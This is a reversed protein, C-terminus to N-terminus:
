QRHKNPPCLVFEPCQIIFLFPLCHQNVIGGNDIFSFWGHRCNKHGYKKPAAVICFTSEIKLFVLLLIVM